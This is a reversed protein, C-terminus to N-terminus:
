RHRLPLEPISTNKLNESYLAKNIGIILSKVSVDLGEICKYGKKLSEVPICLISSDSKEISSLEIGIEKIFQKVELIHSAPLLLPFNNLMVEDDDKFKILNNIFNSIVERFNIEKKSFRKWTALQSYDITGLINPYKDIVEFAIRCTDLNTELKEKYKAIHYIEDYKRIGQPLLYESIRKKLFPGNISNEPNDNNYEHTLTIFDILYDLLYIVENLNYQKNDVNNELYRLRVFSDGSKEMIQKYEEIYARKDDESLELSELLEVSSFFAKLPSENKTLINSEPSYCAKIKFLLNEQIHKVVNPYMKELITFLYSYDHLPQMSHQEKAILIEGIISADLHYQNIYTNRVSKEGISYLAKKTFEDFSQDPYKQMQEMLLLYKIAYEGVRGLEILLQRRRGKVLNVKEPNKIESENGDYFDFGYLYQFGRISDHIMQNIEIAQEYFDMAFKKKEEFDKIEM